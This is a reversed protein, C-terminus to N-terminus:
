SFLEKSKHIITPFYESTLPCKLQPYDKKLNATSYKTSNQIYADVEAPIQLLPFVKKMVGPMPVRQIKLKLGFLRAAEEMMNGVFIKEEPVLHYTRTMHDTPKNIMQTLWNVLINVPLFPLTAGPHYSVPVVSLPIHKTYKSIKHFFRFFYYPGDIKDMEGTVSDGVIIGPRYIRLAVTPMRTNRVLLEAQMKTQSYNDRFPTGPNLDEEMFEGEHIGSVTYTSMYHFITLKKMRQLLFLLNQTGVVNSLYAETESVSLDYTAALHVVAEISNMIVEAGSVQDLVDNNTLDGTVFHINPVGTFLEKAKELSTKRVLCYIENGSRALQRTLRRGIFGTAGTVLIKM